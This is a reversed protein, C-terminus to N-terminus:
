MTTDDNCVEKKHEKCRNILWELDGNLTLTKLEEANKSADKLRAEAEKRYPEVLPFWRRLRGFFRIM